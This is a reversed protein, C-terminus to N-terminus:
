RAMANAFWITRKIGNNLEKKFSYNYVKKKNETEFDKRLEILSSVSDKGSEKKWLSGRNIQYIKNNVLIKIDNNLEQLLDQWSQELENLYVIRDIDTKLKKEKYVYCLIVSALINLSISIFLIFYLM